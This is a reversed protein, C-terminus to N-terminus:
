DIELSSQNPLIKKLPCSNQVLIEIEIISPLESLNTFFLYLMTSLNLLFNNIYVRKFIPQLISQLYLKIKYLIFLVVYKKGNVM